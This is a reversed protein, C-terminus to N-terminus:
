GRLHIHKWTDSDFRFTIHKAPMSPALTYDIGDLIMGASMSGTWFPPDQITIETINASSTENWDMRIKDIIIDDDGTNNITIGCLQKHGNGTLKSESTNVQLYDADSEWVGATFTNGISIETDSFQPFTFGIMTHCLSLAIMSVLLTKIINNM